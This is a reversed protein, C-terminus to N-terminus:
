AHAHDVRQAVSPPPTARPLAVRFTSGVSPASEVSIDGGLLEALRRAVALGLGSGSAKRTRTQEVQWFPDFIRKLSEPDIGIGTDAIEFVVRDSRALVRIVIEGRNTFKVANSVLNVLIQRLRHPDTLIKLGPEVADVRLALGRATAAPSMFEVVDAILRKVSVLDRHVPEDGADLRAFLFMEEILSLLRKASVKIRELPEKQGESVPGSIGEALLEDFGIIATLPTRLEHSMTALFNRKIEDAARASRYLRANDIAVAARRGLAEATALDAEDFRRESHSSVLTLAGLIMGRTAIPVIMASHIGVSRLVALHDADRAVKVLMEDTVIPAFQPEGTRIVAPVGADMEPSAQLKGGVEQVWRAKDPDCHAVALREIDDGMLLDVACWDAFHPVALRAVTTVTTEYDLSSALVRGAADLLRRREENAMAADRAAKLRASQMRFQVALGTVVLSVLTFVVVAFLTPPDGFGISGRPPLWRYDVILIGAITSFLGGPAGAYIASAVVAAHFLAFREYRIASGCAFTLVAAILVIAVVVAARRVATTPRLANSAGGRSARAVASVM